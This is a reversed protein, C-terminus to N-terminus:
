AGASGAPRAALENFLATLEAAPAPRGLLYGQVHAETGELMALQEATEVGEVTCGLGLDRALSLVSRVIVADAPNDVMGRVFSQDVKLFSVPLERLYRLSAFGTGFDDIGIDVGHQRLADIQALTAGAAELLVSETLELALAGAGLGCAGLVGTVAEFLDPRAAQRASLNVACRLDPVTVRWKALQECSQRLVELGLPVILGTDEAVPIFDGPMALRGDSLRLRALGEVAVVTRSPLAFVPQFWVEVGGLRLAQRLDNEAQLLAGSRARLEADFVEHRDKGRRKAQYMAIDAHRLLDEASGGAAAHALGLSATVALENGDFWVPEAVVRQLRQAIRIVEADDALNECLVVFEDGGLRAVTDTPRMAAQLRRALDVLLRDGAEHGFHDNIAKFGDLDCFLMAVRGDDPRRVARALATTTRDMLMARNPLETLGDYLAQRTLEDEAEKRVSVDEVQLLLADDLGTVTLHAWVERDGPLQLLHEGSFTSGVDASARRTMEALAGGVVLTLLDPLALLEAESQGFLECMAPNVMLARGGESLVALGAPDHTFTTRFRAESARLADEAAVQPTIDVLSGIAGTTRGTDDKVPSAAALLHATSGDKRRVVRRAFYSAGDGVRAIDRRAAEEGAADLFLPNTRGVLEAESYGLLDCLQQNVAVITGDLRVELSGVPSHTFLARFRSEADHLAARAQRHELQGLVQRGLLELQGIQRETLSRPVVDLVCLTGVAFGSRTLLPVGAYFRVKPGAVVFPNRAFREDELTDPVILVAGAEVTHTCFSHSRATQEVEAGIAAKIWQRDRDVFSVMAIPTHCLQGALAALDDFAPEPPTDLIALDSLADLRAQERVIGRQSPLLTSM